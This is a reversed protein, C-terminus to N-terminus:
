GLVQVSVAPNRGDDDDDNTTVCVCWSAAGTAKRRSAESFVEAHWRMQQENTDTEIFTKGKKRKGKARGATCDWPGGPQQRNNIRM